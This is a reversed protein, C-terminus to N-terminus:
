SDIRYVRLVADDYVIETGAHTRRYDDCIQRALRALRARERPVRYAPPQAMVFQVGGDARSVDFPAKEVFVFLRRGGLDFRFREDGTRDGFRAVFRSLDYFRGRGGAELRQEPPGVLLWDEDPPLRALALALYPAAPHELYQATRSVRWLARPGEAHAAIQGLALGFAVTAHWGDAPSRHRLWLLLSTGGIVTLLAVAWAGTAAWPSMAMVVLAVIFGQRSGVMEAVLVGTAAATLAPLALRWAIAVHLAQAASVRTLVAAFSALPDWVPTGDLLQRTRWFTDFDAPVPLRIDSGGALWAALPILPLGALLVTRGNLRPWAPREPPAVVRFVLARVLRTFTPRCAGRHRLAWLVVPWSCSLLIATVWNFGNVAVAAPVGIAMTLWTWALAPGYRAISTRSGTGPGLVAAPMWLGIISLCCLVWATTMAASMTQM